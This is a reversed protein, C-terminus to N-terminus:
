CVPRTAPKSDNTYKMSGKCARLSPPRTAATQARTHVRPFQQQAQRRMQLRSILECGSCLHCTAPECYFLNNRVSSLHSVSKGLSTM